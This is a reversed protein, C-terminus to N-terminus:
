RYLHFDSSLMKALNAIKSAYNRLNIDRLNKIQLFEYLINIIIKKKFEKLFTKKLLQFFKLYFEFLILFLVWTSYFHLFIPCDILISRM